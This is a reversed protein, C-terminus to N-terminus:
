TPHISSGRSQTNISLYRKPITSRTTILLFCCYALCSDRSLTLFWKAKSRYWQSRWQHSVKCSSFICCVRLWVSSVNMLGRMKLCLSISYSGSTLILLYWRWLRSISSTKSRFLTSMGQLLFCRRVRCCMTTLNWCRRRSQTLVWTCIMKVLTLIQWSDVWNWWLKPFPVVSLSCRGTKSLNKLFKWTNILKTVVKLM